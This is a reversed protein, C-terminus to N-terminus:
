YGCAGTTDIHCEGVDNCINGVVHKADLNTGSNTYLSIQMDM